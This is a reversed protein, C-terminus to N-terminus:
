DHNAQAIFDTHGSGSSNLLSKTRTLRVPNNKLQYEMEEAGTYYLEYAPAGDFEEGRRAIEM